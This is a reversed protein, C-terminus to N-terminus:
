LSTPVTQAANAPPEVAITHECGPMEFESAATEFGGAAVAIKYSQKVVVAFAVHHGESNSWSEDATLSEGTRVDTLSVSTAEPDMGPPLSVLLRPQEGGCMEDYDDAGTVTSSKPDEESVPVTNYSPIGCGILILFMTFILIKM